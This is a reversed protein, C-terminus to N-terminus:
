RVIVFKKMIKKNTENDTIVAIYLGSSVLQRSTTTHNWYEDGTGDTHEITDILEGLQTYIKITCKGPIDLFALKDQVDPWRIDMDAGIHFPNPVIVIDELDGSLRGPMVPFYTQTYYRNSKLPVGTPTNGTADTNNPGIATIYYFHELGMIPGNDDAVADHYDRASGALSAVLEYHTSNHFIPQTRWIEWAVPDSAGAYTTWVLDIAEGSSTVDFTAPPLPARPIDMGSEWNAKAREFMQFISDKASLVWESKTMSVGSGEPWEIELEDREAASAYKYAYGIDVKAEDSLGAVGEAIVLRVDDDPDMTYPGFGETFQWGGWDHIGLINSPDNRPLTFYQGPPQGADSPEVHDAHHPYYRGTTIHENYQRLMLSKDYEGEVLDVHDSNFMGMTSPQRGALDEADAGGTQWTGAPTPDVANTPDDATNDAHLYLRGVMHAAALRGLTDGPISLEAIWGEAHERWMPRGLSNFETQGPVFGAWSYQATFDVGYDEHGDGVADNMTFQGWACGGDTIWAACPQLGYRQCWFFYVNNLVQDPLEVDLDEDVDGINKFTYEIIHYNDHFQQDFAYINIESQIGVRNTNRNYIQRDAKMAPDIEDIVTWRRFSVAENVRVVPPEFRSIQKFERKFFQAAGITRPGVHAIKVPYLEGTEDTFNTATIWLAEARKNGANKEIAPFSLQSNGDAEEERLAGAESYPTTLRGIDMWKYRYQASLQDAGALMLVIGLLAFLRGADLWKQNRTKM